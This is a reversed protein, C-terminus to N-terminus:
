VHFKAYLKNALESLRVLYLCNRKETVHHMM